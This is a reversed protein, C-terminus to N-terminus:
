MFRLPSAHTRDAIVVLDHGLLHENHQIIHREWKAPKTQTLATRRAAM